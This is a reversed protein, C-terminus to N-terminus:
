ALKKLYAHYIPELEKLFEPCSLICQIAFKYDKPEKMFSMAETITAMREEKWEDPLEEPTDYTYLHLLHGPNTTDQWNFQIRNLGNTANVGPKAIIIWPVNSKYYIKCLIVDCELIYKENTM